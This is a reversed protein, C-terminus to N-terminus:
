VSRIAPLEVPARGLENVLDQFAFLWGINRDLLRCFELEADIELGCGSPRVIGLVNSAVASSTISYYHLKIQIFQQM